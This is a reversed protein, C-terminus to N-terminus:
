RFRRTISESRAGATGSSAVQCRQSRSGAQDRRISTALWRPPTWRQCTRSVPSGVVVAGWGLPGGRHHQTHVAVGGPPVGPGAEQTAEVGRVSHDGDILEAHAVAVSGLRASVDLTDAVEVIEDDRESERRSCREHEGGVVPTSRDRHAPCHLVWVLDSPQDQAVGADGHGVTPRRGPHDTQSRRGRQEVRDAAACRGEDLARDPQRSSADGLDVSLCETGRVARRRRASRDGVEDGVNRQAGSVRRLRRQGFDGLPQRGDVSRDEQRPSRAVRHEVVVECGVQGCSKRVGRCVPERRRIVQHHGLRVNGTDRLRPEVIEETTPQVRGGGGGVRRGGAASRVTRRRRQPCRDCATTAVDGFCEDIQRGVVGDRKGLQGAPDISNRALEVSSAQLATVVHCHEGRRADIQNGRHVAHPTGSTDGHDGVTPEPEGSQPPRDARRPGGVHDSRTGCQSRGLRKSPRRVCLSEVDARQHASCGTVKRRLRGALISCRHQEGGPRGARRLANPVEMALEGGLTIGQGPGVRDIGGVREDGRESGERQVAWREADRACQGVDVDGLRAFEGGLREVGCASPHPCRQRERRGGRQGVHDGGGVVGIPVSQGADPRDHRGPRRHRRLRETGHGFETRVGREVRGVAHGLHQRHGVDIESGDVSGFRVLRRAAHAHTWHHGAGLHADGLEVEVRVVKGVHESDPGGPLDENSRGPHGASVVSEPRHLTSCPWSGTALPVTRAIDAMEIRGSPEPHFTSRDVHDVGRRPRDRRDGDFPHDFACEVDSAASGDPHSWVTALLQHDHDLIGTAGFAWGVVLTRCGDTSRHCNGNRCHQDGSRERDVDAM